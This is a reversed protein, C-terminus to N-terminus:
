DLLNPNEYINGIVECSENLGAMGFGGKEGSVHFRFAVDNKYWKISAIIRHEFKVIDGEYIDKGTRDTLGTFQMLIVSQGQMAYVCPDLPHTTGYDDGPQYMTKIRTDWARFKIQRM